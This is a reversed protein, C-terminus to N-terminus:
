HDGHAEEAVIKAVARVDDEALTQHVGVFCASAAVQRCHTLGDHELGAFGPQDALAAGMLNRTEVGRAALRRAFVDLSLRTPALPFVFPSAGDPPPAFVSVGPCDRLADYLIATHRRRRAEDVTWRRLQFRGFCANLESMEVNLGARIYHFFHGIGPPATCGTPDYHCTCARGWHTISEVRRRWDADSSIIAGGGYSSLHHPHYFSWTALTGYTEVPKGALTLGMTECADQLVIINREAALPCLVDLAAPYGLFHTVCLLRTDARLARRVADPDIVWGGPLTDVVSVRFGALQLASATTPFTFGATIAHSGRGAVEAAAMAAVLNASSGSNVPTVHGVGFTASLDAAFQNINARPSTLETALFSGFGEASVYGTCPYRFPITM